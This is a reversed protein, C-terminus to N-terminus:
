CFTFALAGGIALINLVVQLALLFVFELYVSSLRKM